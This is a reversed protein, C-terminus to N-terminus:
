ESNQHQQRRLLRLLRDQVVDHELRAPHVAVLHTEGQVIVGLDLAVTHVVEMDPLDAVHRAERHVEHDRANLLLRHSQKPRVRDDSILSFIRFLFM